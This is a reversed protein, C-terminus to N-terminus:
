RATLTLRATKGRRAAPPIAYANGDVFVAVNGSDGLLVNVPAEGAVSVENGATGLGFYLRSGTADTVETWCDGSFALRLRLHGEALPGAAPEEAGTEAVPAESEDSPTRGTDPLGAVGATGTADDTGGPETEPEATVAPPEAAEEGRPSADDEPREVARTTVPADILGRREAWWDSGGTLWWYAVVGGVLLVLLAGLWPGASTEGVPRLRKTVLPPAAAARNLRYYDAIVDDEPVDVLEAYRRLYGKAFVPAGLMEFRNRELAWVKPEDLHLERAIEQLSIERAQRAKALREGAVPAGEGNGAQKNPEDSM